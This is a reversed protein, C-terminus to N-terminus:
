RRPRCPSRRLIATRSRREPSCWWAPLIQGRTRRPWGQLAKGLCLAPRPRPCTRPSPPLPPSRRRRPLTLVPVGPSPFVSRRPPCVPKSNGGVHHLAPCLRTSLGGSGPDWEAVTCNKGCFRGASVGRGVCLDTRRRWRQGASM